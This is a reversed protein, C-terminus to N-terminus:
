SQLRGAKDLIAELPWINLHHSALLRCTVRSRLGAVPKCCSLDPKSCSLPCFTIRVTFHSSRATYLSGANDFQHSTGCDELQSAMVTLLYLIPSLPELNVHSPALNYSM